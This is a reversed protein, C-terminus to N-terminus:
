INLNETKQDYSSETFDSKSSVQHFNMGRSGGLKRCLEPVLIVAWLLLFMFNNKGVNSVNKFVVQTHAYLATYLVTPILPDWGQSVITRRGPRQAQLM